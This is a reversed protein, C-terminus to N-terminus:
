VLFPQLSEVLEFHTWRREPAVATNLSNRRRVWALILILALFSSSFCVLHLLQGVTFGYRLTPAPLPDRLDYSQEYYRYGDRIWTNAHPPHIESGGVASHGTFTFLLGVDQKRLAAALPELRYQLVVERQPGQPSQICEAALRWDRGQAKEDLVRLKCGLAQEMAPALSGIDPRDVVGLLLCTLGRPRAVLDLSAATQRSAAAPPGAGLDLNWPYRRWPSQPQTLLQSFAYETQATSPDPPTWFGRGVIFNRGMEQWSSFTQQLLRAAPMIRDWAEQESLFGALYGWRCLSIYRMYDWAFISQRGCKPYYSRAIEFKRRRDPDPGPEMGAVAMRGFRNFEGRQGSERVWELANELAQRDRAQWSGGLLERAYAANEPNLERGGLLDHRDGNRQHLIASAALAWQKPDVPEQALACRALAAVVCLASTYRM